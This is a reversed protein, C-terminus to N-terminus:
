DGAELELENSNGWDKSGKATTKAVARQSSKAQDRSGPSPRDEVHLAPPVEGLGGEKIREFQCQSRTDTHNPPLQASGYNILQYEQNQKIHARPSSLSNM